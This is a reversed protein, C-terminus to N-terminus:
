EQGLSGGFFAGYIHEVLYKGFCSFIYVSLTTHGWFEGVISVIQSLSHIVM